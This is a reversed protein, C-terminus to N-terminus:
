RKPKTRKIKGLVISKMSYKGASDNNWESINNYIKTLLRIKWQGKGKHKPNGLVLSGVM